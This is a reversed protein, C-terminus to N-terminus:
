TQSRGNTAHGAPVSPRRVPQRVARLIIRALPVQAVPRPKADFGDRKLTGDPLFPVRPAPRAWAGRARTEPPVNNIVGQRDWFRFPNKKKHMFM